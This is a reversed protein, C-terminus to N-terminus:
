RRVAGGTKPGSSAGTLVPMSCRIRTGCPFILPDPAKTEIANCNARTGTLM